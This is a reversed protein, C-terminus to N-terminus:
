ATLDPAELATEIETKKNLTLLSYFILRLNPAEHFIEDLPL